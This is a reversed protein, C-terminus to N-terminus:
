ETKEGVNQKAQISRNHIEGETTKETERAERRKGESSAEKGSRAKLTHTHKRTTIKSAQETNDLTFKM